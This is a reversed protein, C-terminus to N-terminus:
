REAKQLILNYFVQNEVTRNGQYQEFILEPTAENNMFCFCSDVITSFEALLNQLSRSFRREIDRISINRELFPKRNFKLRRQLNDM